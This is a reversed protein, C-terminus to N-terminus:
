KAYNFEGFRCYLLEPCYIDCIEGSIIKNWNPSCVFDEGLNRVQVLSDPLRSHESIDFRSQKDIQRIVLSDDEVEISTLNDIKQGWGHPIIHKKSEDINIGWMSQDPKFMMVPYGIRSFIPVIDNHDILYTGIQVVGEKPMGYHHYTFGSIISDSLYSAVWSHIEKNKYNNKLAIDQFKYAPEGILYDLYRGSYSDIYRKTLDSFWSDASPYLANQGVKYEKDSSHLILVYQNDSNKALMIFHNGSSFSFKYGQREGLLTMQTICEKNLKESINKAQSKDIFFYSSSCTNLTIDVPVFPINSDWIVVSGTAFGGALRMVNNPVGLDFSPIIICNANSDYLRLTERMLQETINIYPLLRKQTNDGSLLSNQFLLNKNPILDSGIFYKLM